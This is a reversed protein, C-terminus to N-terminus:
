NARGRDINTIGPYVSIHYESLETAFREQLAMVLEDISIPLVEQSLFLLSPDKSFHFLWVSPKILISYLAKQWINRSNEELFRALVTETDRLVIGLHQYAGKSDQSYPVLASIEDWRIFVFLFNCLFIGQHSISLHAVPTHSTRFGKTLPILMETKGAQM